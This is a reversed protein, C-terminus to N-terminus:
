CCKDMEQKLKKTTEKDLNSKNNQFLFLFSVGFLFIVAALFVFWNETLISYAAIFGAPVFLIKWLLPARWGTSEAPLKKELQYALGVASGGMLIAPITLDVQYGLFHGAVLWIWTGSVGACIPCIRFPLFRDAVWVLLSLSLISIIAIIIM